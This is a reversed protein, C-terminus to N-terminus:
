ASARRRNRSASGPALANTASARESKAARLAKVATFGLNFPMTLEIKSMRERKNGQAGAVDQKWKQDMTWQIKPAFSQGLVARTEQIAIAETLAAGQITPSSGM